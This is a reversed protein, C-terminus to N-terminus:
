YIQVIKAPHVHVQLNHAHKANQMAPNANEKASLLGQLVPYALQLTSQPRVDSAPRIVSFVDWIRTSFRILEVHLIAFIKDQLQACIIKGVFTLVGGALMEMM